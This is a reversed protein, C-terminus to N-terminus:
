NWIDREPNLEPASKELMEMLSMRVFESFTQGTTQRCRDVEDRLDVSMTKRFEEIETDLDQANEVMIFWRDLAQRVCSTKMVHKEM